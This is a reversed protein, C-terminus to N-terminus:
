AAEGNNNFLLTLWSWTNPTTRFPQLVPSSTVAAKRDTFATDQDHGREFPLPLLPSGLV